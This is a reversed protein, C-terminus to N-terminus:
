TGSLSMMARAVTLDAKAPEFKKNGDFSALFTHTTATNWQTKASAPIVINATGKGNTVVKGIFTGVSDKDLYLKVGIGGVPQFRGDIKSKANVVLYPVRNNYSFYSIAVSVDNKPAGQSFGFGPSLSSATLLGIFIKNLPKM